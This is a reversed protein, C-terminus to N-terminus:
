TFKLRQLKTILTLFSFSWTHMYSSKKRGKLM